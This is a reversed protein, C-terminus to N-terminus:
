ELGEVGLATANSYDSDVKMLTLESSKVGAGRVEPWATMGQSIELPTKSFVEVIKTPDTSGAAKIGRDYAVVADFEYSGVLDDGNLSGKIKKLEEVFAKALPSSPLAGNESVTYTKAIPGAVMNKLVEPADKKLVEVVAPDASGLVTLVTPSWGLKALSQAVNVLPTGYTWVALAEVGASKLKSLQATVDSQSDPFTQSVVELGDKETAMQLSTQFTEGGPDASSIEGLKKVKLVNLAYEAQKEAFQALDPGTGFAWPFEGEPSMQESIELNNPSIFLMHTQNVIPQVAQGSGPTPVPMIMKVGEGAMERAIAASQTPDGKDDKSILEYKVGAEGGGNNLYAVGAKAGDLSGTGSASYAGSLPGIFGVKVTEGAETSGGSSSSSGSSGCGAVIVAVVVAFAALLLRSRGRYSNGMLDGGKTGSLRVDGAEDEITIM